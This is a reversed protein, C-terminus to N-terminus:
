IFLYTCLCRGLSVGASLFGPPVSSARRLGVRVQTFATTPLQFVHLLGRGGIVFPSTTKEATTKCGVCTSRAVRGVTISLVSAQQLMLALLFGLITFLHFVLVLEAARNRASISALMLMM